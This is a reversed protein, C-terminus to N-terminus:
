PTVSAPIFTMLHLMSSMCTVEIFELLLNDVFIEASGLKFHSQAFYVFCVCAYIICQSPICPDLIKALDFMNKQTTARIAHSCWFRLFTKANLRIADCCWLRVRALPRRFRNGGIRLALTISYYGIMRIFASMLITTKDHNRRGFM